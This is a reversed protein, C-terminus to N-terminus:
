NVPSPLRFLIPPQSEVNKMTIPDERTFNDGNLWFGGFLQREQFHNLTIYSPM